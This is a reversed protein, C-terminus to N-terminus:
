PDVECSKHRRLNTPDDWYNEDGTERIKGHFLDAPVSHSMRFDKGSGADRVLRRRKQIHEEFEREKTVEGKFNMPDIVRKDHPIFDHDRCAATNTAPFQGSELIEKIGDRKPKM